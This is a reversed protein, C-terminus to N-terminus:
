LKLEYLCERSISICFLVVELIFEHQFEHPIGNGKEPNLNHHLAKLNNGLNIDPKCEQRDNFVTYSRFWETRFVSNFIM